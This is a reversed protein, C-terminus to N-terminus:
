AYSKMRMSKRRCSKRRMSKGRCSKRRKNTKKYKIKGGWTNSSNKGLSRWDKAIPVRRTGPKAYGEDNVGPSDVTTSQKSPNTRDVIEPPFTVTKKVSGLPNFEFSDLDNNM